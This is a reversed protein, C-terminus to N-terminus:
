ILEPAQHSFFPAPVQAACACSCSLAGLNGPLCGGPRRGGRVASARSRPRRAPGHASTARSPLAPPLPRPSPDHGPVPARAALATPDRTGGGARASLRWAHSSGETSRQRGESAPRAGRTPSCSPARPWFTREPARPVHPSRSPKRAQSSRGARLSLTRPTRGGSHRKGSPSARRVGRPPGPLSPQPPMGTVSRAGRGSFASDYPLASAPQHAGGLSLCLWRPSQAHFRPAQDGARPGAATHPPRGQRPRPETSAESVADTEPAHHPGWLGPGRPQSVPAKKRM